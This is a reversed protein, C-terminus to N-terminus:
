EAKAKTPNAGGGESKQEKIKNLFMNGGAPATSAPQIKAPEAKQEKIKNLFMNGGAPEASPKEKASQLRPSMAKAVPKQEPAKLTTLPKKKDAAEKALKAKKEAALKEFQKTMNNINSNSARMNSMDGFEDDDIDKKEM